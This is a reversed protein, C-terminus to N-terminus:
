GNHANVFHCYERRTGDTDKIYQVCITSDAWGANFVYITSSRGYYNRKIVPAYLTDGLEEWGPSGGEYRPMVGSYDTEDTDNENRVVVSIDESASLLLRGGDGLSVGPTLLYSARAALNINAQGAVTNSGSFFTALVQAHKTENNNRIFIQSQWGISLNRAVPLWIPHVGVYTVKGAEVTHHGLNLGNNATINYEGPSVDTTGWNEDFYDDRNLPYNGTDSPELYTLNTAYDPASSKYLGSVLVGPVPQGESDSIRGIVTGTTGSYPNLWLKPNRSKSASDLNSINRDGLPNMVIQLHLHPNPPPPNTRGTDDVEAIQDGATVYQNVAPQVSWQILHLYMSYVYAWQGTTRDYHRQSHRIVVYNGWTSAREENVYDERLDMVTGSAIAYVPTGTGYPFDVGRHTTTVNNIITQKGYLMYTGNTLLEEV